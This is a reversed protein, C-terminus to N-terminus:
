APEANIRDLMEAVRAPWTYLSCVKDRGRRAIAQRAAENNLYFQVKDRLEESGKFTEIEQGPEFLDAVEDCYDTLMFCGAALAEFIRLNIGTEVAYFPARTINLIIKAGAMHQHLEEGWLPRDTVRQKLAASMLPYHRQWRNGFVTLSECISELLFIRRLDGSGVFLVEHQQEPEPLSVPRAGFPAFSADIGQRQLFATVVESFSFVHDYVAVEQQLFFIFERRNSYLNCSDTDYLFLEAQYHEALRKLAAPDVFRYAFGIVVISDPQEQRLISELADFRCKPLYVFGDKEIQKHRLKALAQRPKYLKLRSLGALNCYSSNQGLEILTQHIDHGLSIGSIGDLILIKKAM